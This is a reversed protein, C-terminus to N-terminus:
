WHRSYWTTGVRTIIHLDWPTDHIDSRYRFTTVPEFRGTAVLHGAEADSTVIMIPGQVGMEDETGIDPLALLEARYASRFGHPPHRDFAHLTRLAAFAQGTAWVPSVYRDEM